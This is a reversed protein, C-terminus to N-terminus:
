GGVLSSLVTVEPLIVYLLFCFLLVVLRVVVSGLFPLVEAVEWLYGVDGDTALRHANASLIVV